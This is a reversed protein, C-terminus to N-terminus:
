AGIFDSSKGQMRTFMFGQTRGGPLQQVQEKRNLECDYQVKGKKKKLENVKLKREDDLLNMIM